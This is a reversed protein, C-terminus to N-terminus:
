RTLRLSTELRKVQDRLESENARSPSTAIARVEKLQNDRVIIAQQQEEVELIKETVTRQLQSIQERQANTMDKELKVQLNLVDIQRQLQIADYNRMDLERRAEQQAIITDEERKALQQELNQIELRKHGLMLQYHAAENELSNIREQYDDDEQFLM